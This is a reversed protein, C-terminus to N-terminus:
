WMSKVEEEEFLVWSESESESEFKVGSFIVLISGLLLLQGLNRKTDPVSSCFGRPLHLATAM